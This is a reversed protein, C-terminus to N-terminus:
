AIGNLLSGKKDRALKLMQGANKRALDTVNDGATMRTIERVKGEEDLSAVNIFAGAEMQQKDILIHNDAMCAIQPLHTICLVQRSSAIMVIKEAMRQATVGGVGTDIEDFVMTPLEAKDLLVTKLALAIRSLEGGSAVKNLPKLEQGPNASFFFVAEDQGSESLGDKKKMSIIFKAQEMALDHIHEQVKGAFTKANKGRLASLKDAAEQVAALLAQREKELKQTNEEAHLLEEKKTKASSYYQLIDAITNGYKKKLKYITDLREQVFELRRPDATQNELRSALDLKVDTIAYQAEQLTVSLKVLEEDFRAATELERLVRALMPLTGGSPSHEGELLEYAKALSSAIKEYNALKKSEEELSIDENEKLSAKEIEEIEWSLIDLTREREIASEKNKRLRRTNEQLLAYKQQYDVMMASSEAAGYLDVLKLCADPKLLQQNEHQGHIDVLKEGLIKLLNAPIRVGNATSMSKGADNIRKSLILEGDPYDIGNEDLLGKVLPLKEIDFVAQVMLYNEGKRIQDTSVKGGLAINFADVLISKGAGTEGTLVNFGPTFEVLVKDVLAFNHVSLASLM